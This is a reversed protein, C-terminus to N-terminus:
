LLNFRTQNPTCCIKSQYVKFSLTNAMEDEYSAYYYRNKPTPYLTWIELPKIKALNTNLQDINESMVLLRGLHSNFFFKINKLKNKHHTCKLAAYLKTM